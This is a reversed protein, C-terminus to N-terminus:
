NSSKKFIYKKQIFYNAIFITIDVVLKILTNHIPIVSLLKVIIGSIFMNAIFLALYKIGEVFANNNSEFSYKKNLTFNFTGSIIRAIVTSIIVEYKYNLITFLSLDIVASLLSVISYKIFKKYIRLSDKITNFHSSSNNDLYITKIPIQKILVNNDALYNLVNMEYEYRNGEISLLIDRYKYPFARLGTQTDNLKVGKTLYFYISSFKNGLKSRLPVNGKFSRVGFIVSDLNDNINKVDEPDHQGDADVTIFGNINKFYENYQALATKIAAGKGMNVDHHIIKVEKNLKDFIKKSKSGDDVVLIKDLKLDLLKNVLTILKEDPNYAPIIILNNKM